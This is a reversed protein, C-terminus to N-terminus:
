VGLNLTPLVYIFFWVITALVVAGVMVKATAKILKLIVLFIACVIVLTIFSEPM